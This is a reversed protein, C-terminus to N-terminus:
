MEQERKAGKYLLYYKFLFFLGLSLPILPLFYVGTRLVVFPTEFLFHFTFESGSMQWLGPTQYGINSFHISGTLYLVLMPLFAPLLSCGMLNAYRLNRQARSVDDSFIDQRARDQLAYFYFAYNVEREMVPQWGSDKFMALYDERDGPEKFSRYDIKYVRKEPQSKIFTYYYLSTVKSLRWGGESMQELWAEEKEPSWFFKFTSYTTNM